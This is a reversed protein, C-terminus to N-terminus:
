FVSTELVKRPYASKEALKILNESIDVGVYDINKGGLIELIRGNGCGFDLVRDGKEAYEGIFEMSGWFKKRTQSFKKSILDYGAETEKLIKEVTEKKM